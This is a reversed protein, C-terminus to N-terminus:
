YKSDGSLIIPTPFIADNSEAYKSIEAIRRRTLERQTYRDSESEERKYADALRNVKAIQYIESALLVGMYMEGAPQEFKIFEFTLEENSVKSILKGMM